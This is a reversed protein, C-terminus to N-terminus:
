RRRRPAPAEMSQVIQGIAAQLQNDVGQMAERAALYDQRDTAARAKQVAAAVSDLTLGAAQLGRRRARPGEAAKLRNRARGLATQLDHLEREAQSRVAAKQNAANRAANQAQERSDLAYGLAQRYDREDVADESRKLAAVAAKYEDPAYLDAGAARAAEIAGRAQNM